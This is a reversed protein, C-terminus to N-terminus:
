PSTCSSPGTATPPSSPRPKEVMLDPFYRGPLRVRQNNEWLDHRNPGAWYFFHTYNDICGGMFGFSYDFGHDLPKHGAGSGLIGNASTRPRMARPASCTPWPSKM